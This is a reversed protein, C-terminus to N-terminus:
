SLRKPPWDKHNRTAKNKGVGAVCVVVVSENGSSSVRALMNSELGRERSRDQHEVVEGGCDGGAQLLTTKERCGANGKSDGGCARCGSHSGISVIVKGHQDPKLTERDVCRQSRAQKIGSSAKGGLSLYLCFM